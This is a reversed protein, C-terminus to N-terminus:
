GLSCGCSVTVSKRLAFRIKVYSWPYDCVGGEVVAEPFSAGIPEVAQGGQSYMAHVAQESACSNVICYARCLANTLYITRKSTRVEDADFVPVGLERFMSSVTSKGMGALSAILTLM